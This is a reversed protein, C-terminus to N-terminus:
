IGVSTLARTSSCSVAGGHRGAREGRGRRCCCSPVDYQVDLCRFGGVASIVDRLLALTPRSRQPILFGVFTPGPRSAACCGSTAGAVRMLVGGGRRARIQTITNMLHRQDQRLMRAFGVDIKNTILRAVVASPRRRRRTLRPEASISRPKKEGDFIALVWHFLTNDLPESTRAARDAGKQM